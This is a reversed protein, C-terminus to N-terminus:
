VGFLCVSKAWFVQLSRDALRIQLYQPIGLFQEWQFSQKVMTPCIKLFFVYLVGVVMFLFHCLFSVALHGHGNKDAINIIIQKGDARELVELTLMKRYFNRRDFSIGLIAEYLKQLKTMSFKEELMDFVIPEFAIKERLTKLAAKIIENHDFALEPLSEVEFWKAQVADSGGYAQMMRVLAFFGVSLVRDRPDRDIASFVRFQEMRVAYLGTEERLERQAAQEVTEDSELFGGPLAWHGKFPDGGREILLVRLKNGDFGFVVCDTAVAPRPYEYSYQKGM